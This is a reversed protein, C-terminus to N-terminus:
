KKRILNKLINQAALIFDEEVATDIVAGAAYQHGGAEGGSIAVIDSLIKKLDVNSTRGAIRLSIKTTMDSNRALSLILFGDPFDGSKVLISATTGIITPLVNYKANMIIFGDGRIVDSSDKNKSFWHMATVIERKYNSQSKVARRKLEPNGLCVGIGLSAKDLRGCSNLLTSFEKANKLVSLSEDPLYYINSFIDESNNLDSRRMIIGAVLKQLESDSLDTLKKWAYGKKPNIGISHLFQITGSESGTVGPIELDSGYELLKHIPRSNVGFLRLGTRVVIKKESIADDLIECNLGSFGNNEQIDGIAGILAIHSMSKYDSTLHKSFFYAVGSGSIENEKLNFVRPNLHQIFDAELGQVRHHDLVFVKKNSLYRNLSPLNGSGLDTFVFTQYDEEALKAVTEDKLQPLILISYSRNDKNLANIIISCACIGDCDLHSVLRITESKPIKKFEKAIETVREKFAQVGDL